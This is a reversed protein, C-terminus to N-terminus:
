RTNQAEGASGVELILHHNGQDSESRTPIVWQQSGDTDPVRLSSVGGIQPPTFNKSEFLDHLSLRCIPCTSQKQLWVDICPLHFYHGCEPLVRVLEKEEYEDLCISCQADAPSGFSRSSYKVTPFAAVVVPELSETSHEVDTDPSSRLELDFATAASRSSSSRHRACILRACIFMIFTASLGFGIVTSVLNVQSGFM